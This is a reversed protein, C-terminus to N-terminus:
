RRRERFPCFLRFVPPTAPRLYWRGDGIDYYVGAVEGAFLIHNFLYSVHHVAHGPTEICTITQRDKEIIPRSIIRNEKVPVIAGYAEALHGLVKRSGKLTL